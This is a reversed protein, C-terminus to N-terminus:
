FGFSVCLLTSHEQGMGVHFLGEGVYDEITVKELLVERVVTDLIEVRSELRL